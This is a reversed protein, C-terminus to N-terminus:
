YMTPGCFETPRLQTVNRWGLGLMAAILTPFSAAGAHYEPFDKSPPGRNTYHWPNFGVIRPEKTAWAFFGKLKAILGAAQGANSLDRGSLSCLCRRQAQSPDTACGGVSVDCGFLGQRVFLLANNLEKCPKPELRSVNTYGIM